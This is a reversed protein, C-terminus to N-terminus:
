NSAPRPSPLAALDKSFYLLRIALAIIGAPIIFNTSFLLTAMKTFILIYFASIAITFVAIVEATALERDRKKPGPQKPSTLRQALAFSLCVVPVFREFHAAMMLSFLIIFLCELAFHIILNRKENM